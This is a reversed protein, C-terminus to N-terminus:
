SYTFGTTLLSRAVWTTNAVTCLVEICDFQEASAVSVSVAANIIQITQGANPQLIWGGAGTGVIAVVSGAPAIAPLTFTVTGANTVYYGTNVAATIPTSAAALWKEFPSVQADVYAKNAIDTSSVPTAAVQGSALAATSNTITANPITLGIPLTTSLAPVSSNSTVLVANALSALPSLIQGNAAYYPLNNALGPNITGTGSGSLETWLGTTPNYYEYVQSQTNLRLRFYIDPTPTPRSATDGSPLFTWPNNFLVNGGGLLGPTQDNNALDGGSTM